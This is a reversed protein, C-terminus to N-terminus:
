SILMKLHKEFNVGERPPTNEKATDILAASIFNSALSITADFADGRAIGGTLCSAFLDGTGSYSGPVCKCSIFESGKQDIHLNGMCPIGKVNMHIGTIIVHKDPKNLLKRGISSLKELFHENDTEVALEKYDIKALLCAETLNPTLIDAKKCLRNMERLFSDTFFPYAEGNDGMVPDVLLFNEENYFADLFHFIKDVQETSALFGTYIGSFSTGEKEWEKTFIDINDTLDDCYYSPYGTQATLVATPLPCPSVGMVSLVPIAATLSCRGLGSLDNIVAIKKSM